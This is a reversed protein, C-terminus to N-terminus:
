LKESPLKCELSLLEIIALAAAKQTEFVNNFIPAHPWDKFFIGSTSIVLDNNLERYASTVDVAFRCFDSLDNTHLIAQHVANCFHEFNITWTKAKYRRDQEGAVTKPRHLLTVKRFKYANETDDWIATLEVNDFL